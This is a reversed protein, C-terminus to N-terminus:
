KWENLILFLSEKIEKINKCVPYAKAFEIFFTAPDKPNLEDLLEIQIINRLWMQTTPSWCYKSVIKQVKACCYKKEEIIEKLIPEM